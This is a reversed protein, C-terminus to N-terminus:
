LPAKLKQLLRKGFDDMRCEAAAAQSGLRSRLDNRCIMLRKTMRVSKTWRAKYSEDGRLFDFEALGQEISDRISFALLNTGISEHSLSTDWGIIYYGAKGRCTFCWGVAKLEGDLKIAQLRLWGKDYFLEAVRRYFERRAEGYFIGNEGHQQWRSTHLAFLTDLGPLLEERSLVTCLAEHSEAMVREHRRIEHRQKKGIEQLFDDWSSPLPMFYNVNQDLCDSRWGRGNLVDPVLSYPPLDHLDILDWAHSNEELWRCVAEGFREEYGPLVLFDLIDSVGTGIFQLRRLPLGLVPIIEFPAIGVVRGGEQACLLFMRKDNGLFEICSSVWEWSQFVSAGPCLSFLNDWGYRLKNLSERNDALTLELM